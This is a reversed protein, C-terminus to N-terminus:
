KMMGFKQEIQAKLEDADMGKKKAMNRAMQELQTGDKGRVMQMGMSIVPNQGEMGELLQMPNNRGGMTQQILMNMLQEFMNPM